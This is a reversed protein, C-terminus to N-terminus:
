SAVGEDLPEVVVTVEPALGALLRIPVQHRGLLRIPEELVIKRKDVPQGTQKELESAIDASTISGYLRGKESTKVKFTLSIESLREALATSDTRVREDRQEEVAKQVKTSRIAGPTALVALGRPILYNRGYGAAVKKVEGAKGLRKIDKLLLVEV